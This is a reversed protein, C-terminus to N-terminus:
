VLSRASEADRKIQEKLQEFSEFKCEPRIFHLLEVELVQDYLDGEFDFLHVELLPTTEGAELTPKIGWNAVGFHEAGSKPNKVKVAYVGFPPYLESKVAINATPYGLTRALARGQIVKGFFSFPRGLLQQAHELDGTEVSRRIRSSSIVGERLELECVGMVEFEYQLGLQQLRRLSGERNKGFTWNSGVSIWKLEPCASKLRCVFAESSLAAFEADFRQCFVGDIDLKELHHLKQAASYLLRPALDPRLFKAPHPDFTLVVVSGGCSQAKERAAGIVAQHGLHLGDFVGIALAVPTKFQELESVEHIIKM